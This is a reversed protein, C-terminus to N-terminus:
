CLGFGMEHKANKSVPDQREWQSLLEDGFLVQLIMMMLAQRASGESM